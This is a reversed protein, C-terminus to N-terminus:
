ANPLRLGGWALTALKLAQEEDAVGEQKFMAALGSVAAPLSQSCLPCSVGALRQSSAEGRRGRSRPAHAKKRHWILGQRTKLSEGCEECTHQGGTEESVSGEEGDLMADRERWLAELRKRSAQDRYYLRQGRRAAELAEQDDQGGWSSV